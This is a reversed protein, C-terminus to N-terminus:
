RFFSGVWEWLSPSVWGNYQLDQFKTPAPTEPPETYPTGSKIRFLRGGLNGWSYHEYTTQVRQTTGGLTRQTVRRATDYSTSQLYPYPFQGLASDLVMQPHYTFSVTESTTGGNGAPYAM